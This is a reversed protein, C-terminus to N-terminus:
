GDAPAADRLWVREDHTVFFDSIPEFYDYLLLGETVADRVDTPVEGGVRRLLAAGGAAREVGEDIFADRADASSSPPRSFALWEPVDLAGGLRRVECAERLKADAVLQAATDTAPAVITAAATIAPLVRKLSDNTM